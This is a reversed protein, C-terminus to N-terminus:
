ETMSARAAGREGTAAQVIVVADTFVTSIKILITRYKVIDTHVLGELRMQNDGQIYLLM